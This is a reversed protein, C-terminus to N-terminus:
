ITGNSESCAPHLSDLEQSGMGPKESVANLDNVKGKGDGILRLPERRSELQPPAIGPRDAMVEANIQAGMRMSPLM